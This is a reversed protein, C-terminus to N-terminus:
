LQSEVSSCSFRQVTSGIFWQVTSGSEGEGCKSKEVEIHFWHVVSGNFRKEGKGRRRIAERFIASAFYFISSGNQDFAVEM